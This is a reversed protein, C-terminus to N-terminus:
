YQKQQSMQIILHRIRTTLADQYKILMERQEKLTDTQENLLLETAKM